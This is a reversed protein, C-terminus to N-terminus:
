WGRGAGGGGSHGGGFGGFGGGSSSRGGGSFGGWTRTWGTPKGSTKRTRYNRSLLLDLFTGFIGFGISLGIIAALHSLAFGLALGCIVGWVGGLWFSKTRAMWGLLYITIFGMVFLIPMWVDSKSVFDSLPNEEVASPSSGTRIYSEISATGSIIGQEYNGKKFQPIVDNDLIRGARGDTIITELGYGVEIWTQRDEYAILFLIGNDEGSKGIGWEEFLENAYYEVPEGDLTTITVVAIEATTDQELQNLQAELQASAESSLLGAFDNVFGVPEPLDQAFVIGGTALVAVLCILLAPWFRKM